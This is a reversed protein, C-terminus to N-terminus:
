PALPRNSVSLTLSVVVEGSSDDGVAFSSSRARRSGGPKEASAAVDSATAMLPLPSAADSSRRIIFSRKSAIPRPSNSGADPAKAAPTPGPNPPGPPNPPAPPGSPPRPNPGPPGGGPPPGPPPPGPKKM